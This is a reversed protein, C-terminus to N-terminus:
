AGSRRRRRSASGSRRARRGSRGAGAARPPRAASPGRGVATRLRATTGTASESRARQEAAAVRHGEDAHQAEDRRPEARPAVRRQNREGRQDPHDAVHERRQRQRLREVPEPPRRAKRDGARQREDGGDRHPRQEVVPGGHRTPQAVRVSTRGPRRVTVPRTTADHASGPVRSPKQTCKADIDVAVANPTSHPKGYRTSPAPNLERAAPATSIVPTSHEARDARHEAPEDAPLRRHAHASARTTQPTVITPQSTVASARPSVGGCAYM